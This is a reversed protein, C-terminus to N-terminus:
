GTILEPTNDTHDKYRQLIVACYEPLAEIGYGIRNENEAAIITTGSGCFPDIWIDGSDSYAKIFFTPLKIPFTASHIEGVNKDRLFGRDAPIDIVNSPFAFENDFTRQNLHVDSGTPSGYDGRGGYDQKNKKTKRKNSDNMEYKVNEKRFKPINLSFQYVPEYGNKFRPDFKGPLGGNKWCLEDVFRWGWTRVMALVMDMVYLVRQGKECHPKINVFFSGDDALVSRMNVQVGDWWEVYQDTPVGGYSDKRQMAYPPSTFIGNCKKGEMLRDVVAKDTCDGCILRHRGLAWLQGEETKWEKQLEAAKDVQPETDSSESEDENINIDIGALYSEDFGISEIDYDTELEGIELKLMEPDYGSEASRNDALRAARKETETLDDRVIVPFTKMKLEMAALRRGHGKIIVMNEDVVIPQDAKFNDISHRILKLQADPHLKANQEYPIMEAPNLYQIKFENEKKKKM